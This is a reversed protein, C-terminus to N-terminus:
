SANLIHECSMLMIVVLILKWLRSHIVHYEAENYKVIKGLYVQLITIVLNPYCLSSQFVVNLFLNSALLTSVMRQHTQSQTDQHFKLKILILLPANVVSSIPKALMSFSATTYLNNIVQLRYATYCIITSAPFTHSMLM